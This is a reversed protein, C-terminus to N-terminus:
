YRFLSLSFPTLKQIRQESAECKSKKRINFCSEIIDAIQVPEETIFLVRDRSIKAFVIIDSFLLTWCPKEVSSGELRTLHGGEFLSGFNIILNVM